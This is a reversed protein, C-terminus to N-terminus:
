ALEHSKPFFLDSEKLKPRGIEWDTYYGFEYCNECLLSFEL